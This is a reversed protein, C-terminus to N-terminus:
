EGNAGNDQTTETPTEPPTWGLRPNPWEELLKRQGEAIPITVRGASGNFEHEYRHEILLERQEEQIAQLKLIPQEVVKEIRQQEESSYYLAELYIITLVFILVGVLALYITAGPTPDGFHRERESQTAM